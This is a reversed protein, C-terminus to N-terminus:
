IGEPSGGDDDGDSPEEPQTPDDPQEPDPIIHGEDDKEQSRGTRLNYSKNMDDILRNISAVFTSLEESPMSVSYAFAITTIYNYQENMVERLPQASGLNNVAMNVSRQELLAAFREAVDSLSDAMEGQGLTTLYDAITPKRMDTVLGRLAQVQQRQPLNYLGSYPKLANYAGTAATKNAAIQTEIATTVEATNSFKGMLESTSKTATAAAYVLNTKANSAANLSSTGDLTNAVNTVIINGNDAAVTTKEGAVSTVTVENNALTAGTQARSPHWEAALASTALAMTVAFATLVSVAKKM